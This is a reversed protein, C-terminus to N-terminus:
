AVDEDGVVLSESLCFDIVDLRFRESLLLGPLIGGFKFANSEKGFEHNIKLADHLLNSIKLNGVEVAKLGFALDARVGVQIHHIM